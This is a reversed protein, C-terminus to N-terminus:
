HQFGVCCLQSMGGIQIPKAAPHFFMPRLQEKSGMSPSPTPLSTGMWVERCSQTACLRQGSHCLWLRLFTYRVRRSSPGGVCMSAVVLSAAGLDTFLHLAIPPSFFLSILFNPQPVPCISRYQASVSSLLHTAVLAHYRGLGGPLIHARFLSM